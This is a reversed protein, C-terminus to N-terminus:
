KSNFYKGKLFETFAKMEEQYIKLRDAEEKSGRYLWRLRVGYPELRFEGYLNVTSITLRQHIPVSRSKYFEDLIKLIREAEQLNKANLQRVQPIAVLDDITKSPNKQVLKLIEKSPAEGIDVWPAPEGWGIHGECSATTTFGHVWLAVVTEKIGGDIEKGLGDTIKAAEQQLKEWLLEKETSNEM